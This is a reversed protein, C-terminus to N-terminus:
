AESPDYDEYAYAPVDECDEDPYEMIHTQGPVESPVAKFLHPFHEHLYDLEKESFVAQGGDNLDVGACRLGSIFGRTFPGLFHEGSGVFPRGSMCTWMRFMLTMVDLETDHGWLRGFDLIAMKTNEFLYDSMGDIAADGASFRDKFVVIPNTLVPVDGAGDFFQFRNITFVGM